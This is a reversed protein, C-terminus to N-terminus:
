LGKGLSENVKKGLETPVSISSIGGYSYQHKGACEAAYGAACGAAHEESFEEALEAALVAACVRRAATGCTHQAM